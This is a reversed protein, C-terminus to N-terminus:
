SLVTCAKATQNSMGMVGERVSATLLSIATTRCISRSTLSGADRARVADARLNMTKSM